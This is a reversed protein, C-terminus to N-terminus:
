GHARAGEEVPEVQAVAVIPEGKVAAHLVRVIEMSLTRFEHAARADLDRKLDPHVYLGIFVGNRGTAKHVTKNFTQRRRHGLKPATGAPYVSNELINNVAESLPVGAPLNNILAKKLEVPAYVGMFAGKRESM